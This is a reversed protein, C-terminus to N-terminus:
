GSGPPDTGGAQAEVAWYEYKKRLTALVGPWTVYIDYDSSLPMEEVEIEGTLDCTCALSTCGSQTDRFTRTRRDLEDSVIIGYGLGTAANELLRTVRTALDVQSIALDITRLTQSAEAMLKDNKM